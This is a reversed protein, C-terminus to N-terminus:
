RGPAGFSLGQHLREGPAKFPPKLSFIMLGIKEYMFVLFIDVCYSAFAM